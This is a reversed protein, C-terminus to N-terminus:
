AAAAASNILAPALAVVALEKPIVGSESAAALPFASIM